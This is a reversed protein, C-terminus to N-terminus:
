NFYMMKRAFVKNGVHIKYMYIGNSLKNGQEGRGDWKVSHKGAPKQQNVLTHVLQGMRNHIKIQVNCPKVVSYKITTSPNFPNPYNQLLVCETNLNSESLNDRACTIVRSTAVTLNDIWMVQEVPSGDGIYPAILFQNFKMNSFKGTRLMVDDHDILLEGNYWYRVIGDSIGKGESISNLKFYAEIFHWDNKFYKGSEDRFYISDAKWAKGNYHVAGNLYCEGEGYGDSDGNCGAVARGETINTLDVGINSEDINEGDQIALLPTGENQEIYTTLHTRAPGVYIGNETTLFHFEHPHYPKNSGTYNSSYKVYYSLYVEDTEDFLHRGPTGGECGRQGKLFRCELCATSGEIHESSTIKGRLADYWGRSAFDTDEFNEQFLIIEDAINKSNSSSEQIQALATQTLTFILLSLLAPIAKRIHNRKTPESSNIFVNSNERLSTRCTELQANVPRHYKLRSQISYNETM